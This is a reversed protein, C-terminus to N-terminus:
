GNDYQERVTFRLTDYVTQIVGDSFTIEVEGEFEGADNLATATWNMAMRGGKGAVDYPAASTTVGTDPDTYGAIPFCPISEKITDSGMERFHLKISTGAGSLDIPALTARDTLSLVLQPGTDGQVLKIKDSM